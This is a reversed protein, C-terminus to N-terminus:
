ESHQPLTAFLVSLTYQGFRRPSFLIADRSTELWSADTHSAYREAGNAIARHGADFVEDAAWVIGGDGVDVLTLKWGVVLPEYAHYPALKSFLVADCGFEARLKEFLDDPLREETGWAERGTWARLTEPSVAVVEFRQAKALEQQLVPQLQVRADVAQWDDRDATIPLVAVRRFDNPLTAAAGFVNDKVSSGPGMAHRCICAPTVLLVLLGLGLIARMLRKM